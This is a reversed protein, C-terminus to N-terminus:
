LYFTEAVGPNHVSYSLETSKEIDSLSDSRLETIASANDNHKAIYNRSRGVPRTCCRPIKFLHPLNPNRKLYILPNIASNMWSLVAFLPHVIFIGNEKKLSLMFLENVCLPMQFIIHVFALVLVTMANETEALLRIQDNTGFSSSPRLKIGALIVIIKFCSHSTLVFPVIRCAATQYIIWVGRYASYLCHEVAYRQTMDTNIGYPLPEDGTILYWPVAVILSTTFSLMLFRYVTQKCPGTWSLDRLSLYRTVALFTVCLTGITRCFASFFATVYSVGDGFRWWGICYSMWQVLICTIAAILDSGSTAALVANTAVHLHENQWLIILIGSNTCVNSIFIVALLVAMVVNEASFPPTERLQLITGNAINEM